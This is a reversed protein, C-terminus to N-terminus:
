LRRRQVRDRFCREIVLEIQDLDLPKVLYDFAGARMASVATRMDEFATIVVVNLDPIRERILGLLEIGNMGSMRVDTIVLGPDIQQIRSLADEASASVIVEYGSRSLTRALTERIAADDDVVLIRKGNM